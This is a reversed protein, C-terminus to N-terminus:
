NWGFPGRRGRSSCRTSTALRRFTTLFRASGSAQGLRGTIPYPLEDKLTERFCKALHDRENIWRLERAAALAQLRVATEAVLRPLLM